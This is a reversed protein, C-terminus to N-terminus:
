QVNESLIHGYPQNLWGLYGTAKENFQIHSEPRASFACDIFCVFMYVLQIVTYLRIFRESNILTYSLFPALFSTGKLIHVLRHRIARREVM